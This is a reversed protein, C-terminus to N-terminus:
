AHMGLSRKPPPPRPTSLCLSARPASLYDGFMIEWSCNTHLQVSLAFSKAVGRM